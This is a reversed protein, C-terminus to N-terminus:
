PGDLAEVLLAKTIEPYRLLARVRMVKGQLLTMQEELEVVRAEASRLREELVLSQDKAM